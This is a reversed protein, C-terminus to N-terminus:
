LISIIEQLCYEGKKDYRWFIPLSHLKSNYLYLLANNNISYIKYSDYIFLENNSVFINIDKINKINEIDITHDIKSFIKRVINKNFNVDNINNGIYADSSCMLDYVPSILIVKTDDKINKINLTLYGGASDAMIYSFNEYSYIYNLEKIAVNINNEPYLSYLPFWIEINNNNSQAKKYIEICFSRFSMYDGSIFGGGHIYLMKKSSNGIIFIPINNTIIMREYNYIGEGFTYNIVGLFPMQIISLPLFDFQLYKFIKMTTELNRGLFNLISFISKIFIIYVLSPKIFWLYPSLLCNKLTMLTM